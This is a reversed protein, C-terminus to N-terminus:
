YNQTTNETKDAQLMTHVPSIAVTATRTVFAPLLTRPAVLNTKGPDRTPPPSLQPQTGCADWLQNEPGLIYHLM